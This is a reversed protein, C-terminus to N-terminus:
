GNSEAPDVVYVSVRIILEPRYKSDTQLRITDNLNVAYPATASIKVQWSKNDDSPEVLTASVGSGELQSMALINFPHAEFPTITVSTSLTEGPKGYLHVSAPEIKVVGEVKGTVVLTFKRRDPDNTRVVINKTM